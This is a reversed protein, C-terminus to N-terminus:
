NFVRGELFVLSCGDVALMSDSRFALSALQEKGVTDSRNEVLRSNSDIGSQELEADLDLDRFFVVDDSQPLTVLVNAEPIFYIRQDLGIAGRSFRDGYNAGRVDVNPVTCIAGDHGAVYISVAPKKGSKSSHGQDTKEVRLYFAGQVYAGM